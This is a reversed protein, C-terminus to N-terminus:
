SQREIEDYYAERRDSNQKEMKSKEHAWQQRVARSEMVKAAFQSDNCFKLSAEAELTELLSIAAKSRGDVGCGESTCLIMEVRSKAVDVLVAFWYPDARVLGKGLQDESM